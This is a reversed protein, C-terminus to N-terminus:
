GPLPKEQPIRAMECVPLEVAMVYSSLPLAVHCYHRFKSFLSFVTWVVFHGTM